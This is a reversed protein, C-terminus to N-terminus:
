LWFYLSEFRCIEVSSVKYIYAGVNHLIVVGFVESDPLRVHVVTIHLLSFTFEVCIAGLPIASMWTIERTDASISQFM